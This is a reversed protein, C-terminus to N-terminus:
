RQAKTLLAVNTDRYADLQKGSTQQHQLAVNDVCCIPCQTILLICGDCADLVLQSQQIPVRPQVLNSGVPATGRM